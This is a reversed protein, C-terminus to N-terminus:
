NGGQLAEELCGFSSIWGKEHNDRQDASPLKRHVLHLETGNIHAEFDLTVESNQTEGGTWSWTFVLRRPPSIEVYTGVLKNVEGNAMHLDFRYDGGVRLDLEVVNVRTRTPGFWAAVIKPDTFAAFVKEPPARFVHRLNLMEEGTSRQQGATASEGPM